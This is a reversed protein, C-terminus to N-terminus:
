SARRGHGPLRCTEGRAQLVAEALAVDERAHIDMGEADHIEVVGWKPRGGVDRAPMRMSTNLLLRYVPPSAQRDAGHVHLVPWYGESTALYLPPEVRVGPYVTDYRRDKDTILERMARFTAPTLLVNNCNVALFVDACAYWSQRWGAGAPERVLGLDREVFEAIVRGAEDPDWRPHAYDVLHEPRPIAKYGFSETLRAIEEDETFVYFQDVVGSEAVAALSRAILPVGLVPYVNKRPLTSGNGRAWMTGICRM